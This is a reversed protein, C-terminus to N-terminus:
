SSTRQTLAHVLTLWATTRAAAILLDGYAFMLVVDEATGGYRLAILLVTLSLAGEVATVALQIGPMGMAAPFVKGWVAAGRVCSSLLVLVMVKALGAYATGYVTALASSALPTVGATTVAGLIALMVTVRFTDRRIGSLDGAVTASVIRPYIQTAVSSILGIYLRGAAATIKLFTVVSPGSMLGALALVGRDQGAAMSTALSSKAAFRVIGAPLPIPGYPPPGLVGAVARRATVAFVTTTALGALAGAALYAVPGGALLAAINMAFTFAAGLSRLVGIRGLQGVAAFGAVATGIPAAFGGGVVTLLLFTAQDAAIWGATRASLVAGVGLVVAVTSILADFWFLRVFLWTGRGRGTAQHVPVFRQTADDLRLDWLMFWVSVVSQAFFVKGSTEGGAVRVLAVTSLFSLAAETQSGTVLSAFTRLQRRSPPRMLDGARRVLDTM